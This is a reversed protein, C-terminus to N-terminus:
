PRAETARAQHQALWPCTDDHSIEVLYVRGHRTMEQWADCDDCGGPIRQCAISEFIEQLSV